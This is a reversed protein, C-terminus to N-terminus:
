ILELIGENLGVKRIKFSLFKDGRMKAALIQSALHGYITVEDLNYRRKMDSAVEKRVRELVEQLSEDVWLRITKGM